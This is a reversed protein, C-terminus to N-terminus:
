LSRRRVRWAVLAVLLLAAGVYLGSEIWQFHWFRDGPQYSVARHIGHQQFYAPISVGANAADGSLKDLTATSLKHGSSDVFTTGLVWDGANGTGRTDGPGKDQVTQLVTMASAFKPRALSAVAIRAMVFAAAAVALGALSRRLLVGAVTAVAFAFLAYAVPAVGEVEYGVQGLRGDFTDVPARYWTVMASFALTLLVTLGALVTVKVALWRLRPVAQTWALQWTGAEFERGLLPAGLFAGIVFPMLTALFSIPEPHGYGDSLKSLAQACSDGNTVDSNACAAAGDPFLGRISLGQMLLILGAVAVIGTLVLMEARHQRWTMWIM